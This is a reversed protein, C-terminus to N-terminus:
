SCYCASAIIKPCGSYKYFPPFTVFHIYMNTSFMSMVNDSCIRYICSMSNKYMCYSYKQSMQICSYYTNLTLFKHQILWVLDSDSKNKCICFDEFSQKFRTKSNLIVSQIHIQFFFFWFRTPSNMWPLFEYWLNNKYM